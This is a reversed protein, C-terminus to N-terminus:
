KYIIARICRDQRILYPLDNTAYTSYEVQNLGTELEFSIGDHGKKKNETELVAVMDVGEIHNESSIYFETEVAVKITLGFTNLILKSFYEPCSFYSPLIYSM